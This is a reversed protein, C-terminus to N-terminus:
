RPTRRPRHAPPRKERRRAPRGLALWCRTLLELWKARFSAGPMLPLGPRRLADLLLEVAARTRRRATELLSAALALSTAAPFLGKDLGHTLEVSEQATSRCRELDGAATATLSRNLLLGVLSHTTAWSVRTRSPPTSCRPAPPSSAVCCGSGPLSCSRRPCSPPSDPREPSPSPGSAHAGSAEFRDLYLEAGALNVVADLRLALESDPHRRDPRRGGLSAGGGEAVFGALAAAWASM